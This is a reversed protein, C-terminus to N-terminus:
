FQSNHFFHDSCLSVDDFNSSLTDTPADYSDCQVYSSLLNQLYHRCLLTTYQQSHPFLIQGEDIRTPAYAEVTSHLAPLAPINAYSV